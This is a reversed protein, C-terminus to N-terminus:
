HLTLLKDTFLHLAELDVKIKESLTSEAKLRILDQKMRQKKDLTKRSDLIDLEKIQNYLDFVAPFKAEDVTQAKLSGLLVALRWCGESFDCQEEKMARVIIVISNLVKKDHVQMKKQNQEALEAKDQQQQTLAKKQASLQNLLKGAYFALIAIIIIGAVLLSIGTASFWFNTMSTDM